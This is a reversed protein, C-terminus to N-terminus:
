PGPDHPDVRYRVISILQAVYRVILRPTPPHLLNGRKEKKRVFSFPPTKFTHNTALAARFNRITPLKCIGLGLQGFSAIALIQRVMTCREFFLLTGHSGVCPKAGNLTCGRHICKGKPNLAVTNDSLAGSCASFFVEFFGRLGRGFFFSLYNKPEYKNPNNPKFIKM